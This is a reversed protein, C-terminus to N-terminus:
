QAESHSQARAAQEKLYANRRGKVFHECDAHSMESTACQAIAAELTALAKKEDGFRWYAEALLDRTEARSFDAIDNERKALLRELVVIAGSFQGATIYSRALNQAIHASTDAVKCGMCNDLRRRYDSFRELGLEGLEIQHPYSPVVSTMLELATAVLDTDGPHALVALYAAKFFRRDGDEHEGVHSYSTWASLLTGLDDIKLTPEVTDWWDPKPAATEFADRFNQGPSTAGLTPATAAALAPEARHARHRSVRLAVATGVIAIVVVSSLVLGRQLRLDEDDQLWRWGAACAFATLALALLYAWAPVSEDRV